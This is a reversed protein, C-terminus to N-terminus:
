SPNEDVLVRVILGQAQAGASGAVTVYLILLDGDDIDAVSPTSKTVTYLVSANTMVITSSLITTPSGATAVKKVDITVTRDAGTAIAGAIAVCVNQIVSNDAKCIYLPVTAAVVATGIAQTYIPEIRNVLKSAAIRATESVADDTLTGTPIAMTHATFHGDVHVNNPIVQNDLSM